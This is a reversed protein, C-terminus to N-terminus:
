GANVADAVARVDSLDNYLHFGVRVADARVSGKIGRAALVSTDSLPVTVIASQGPAQGLLERLQNALAVNHEHIRGIGIGAILELAPETGVWSLWAPSVDFRRASSALRLPGGYISKWVEDGAYWGAFLPRLTDAASRGVTMFATGRPSLLWKYASAVTYDYRSTELPLWGMAQTVDVLMRTGHDRAQAEINDIDAVKGDASRVASFAILETDHRIADALGDFPVSEVQLGRSENVLLPFLISTFEDDAVLVRSGGPVSAAVLGAFISVQNAVAVRSPDTNAIEAYLERSTAVAADYEEMTAVGRRWRELGTELAAVTGVHPLGYTATDVYIGDPDFGSALAGDNSTGNM